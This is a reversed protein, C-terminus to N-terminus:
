RRAKVKCKARAQVDQRALGAGALRDNDVGHAQQQTVPGHCLPHAGAGFHGLMSAVNEVARRCRAHRLTASRQQLRFAKVVRVARRPDDQATLHTEVAAVDAADIPAAHAQLNEAIHGSCQDVHVPLALVKAQQLGRM